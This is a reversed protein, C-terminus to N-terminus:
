SLVLTNPAPQQSKAPRGRRRVPAVDANKQDPEAAAKRTNARNPNTRITRRVPRPSDESSQSSTDETNNEKQMADDMKKLLCTLPQMGNVVMDEISKSERSPSHPRGEVQEDKEKMDKEEEEIEEIEISTTRPKPVFMENLILVDGLLIMEAPNEIHISDFIELSQMLSESIESMDLAASEAPSVSQTQTVSASPSVPSVSQTPSVPTVVSDVVRQVPAVPSESDPVRQVPAVPSVSDAVRQVPSVSQAPAVSQAVIDCQGTSEIICDVVSSRETVNAHVGPDIVSNVRPAVSNSRAGGVDGARPFTPVNRVIHIEHMVNPVRASNREDGTTNRTKPPDARDRLSQSHILHNPWPTSSCVPEACTGAADPRSHADCLPGGEKEKDMFYEVSTMNRSIKIIRMIIYILCAAVMITAASVLFTNWKKNNPQPKLINATQGTVSNVLSVPPTKPAPVSTVTDSFNVRTTSSHM